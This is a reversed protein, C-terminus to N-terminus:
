RGNEHDEDLREWNSEPGKVRGLASGVEDKSRNALGSAWDSRPEEGHCAQDAVRADFSSQCLCSRARVDDWEAGSCLMM